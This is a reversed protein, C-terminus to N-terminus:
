GQRAKGQILWAASLASLIALAVSVLMTLRFGWIFSASIAQQVKEKLDPQLGDPVKAGALRIRQDDLTHRAEAPLNLSSLHEDLRSNFAHLMILGFV